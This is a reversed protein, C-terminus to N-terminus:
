LSAAWELGVCVGALPGTGAGVSDYLADANLPQAAGADGAVALRIVEHSVADAVPAILPKNRLMIWPKNGGIRSGAGGGLIVAVTDSLVANLPDSGAKQILM